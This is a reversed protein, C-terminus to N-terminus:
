FRSSCEGNIKHLVDTLLLIFHDPLTFPRQFGHLLTPFVTHFCSFHSIFHSSSGPLVHTLVERLYNFFEVKLSFDFLDVYDLHSWILSILGKELPRLVLVQVESIYEKYNESDRGGREFFHTFSNESVACSCPRDSTPSHLSIKLSQSSPKLHQKRGHTCNMMYNIGNFVAGVDLSSPLM